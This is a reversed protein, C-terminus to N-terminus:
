PTVERLEWGARKGKIPIALFFAFPFRDAAIKMKAWSDDQIIAAAGKVDHMQLIGDASMVAFDITLHTNKALKLKIAEFEFWLIEGAQRRAQLHWSYATESKNM